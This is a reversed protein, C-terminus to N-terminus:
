DANSYFLKNLKDRFDQMKDTPTGGSFYEYMCASVSFELTAKSEKDYVRVHSEFDNHRLYGVGVHLDEAIKKIAEEDYLRLIRQSEKRINDRIKEKNELCIDYCAQNTERNFLLKEIRTM